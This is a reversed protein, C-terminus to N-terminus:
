IKNVTIKDLTVDIGEADYYYVRYEMNGAGTRYFYLSFDTYDTGISRAAIDRWVYTGGGDNNVAEIRILSTNSSASVEKKLRFIVGYNGMSQDLTYPGYSMFGPGSGSEAIVSKGGDATADNLVTGVSRMQDEAQYTISDSSFKTVTVKDSIIDAVDTTYVRFEMTGGPRRNFVLSFDTWTNASSFDTGKISKIVFPSTGGPNNVEIRAVNENSYTPNCKLRFTAKYTNNTPQDDSYPGYVLYGAGNSVWTAERAKGNSATTDLIVHGVISSSDESEYVWENDNRTYLSVKDVNIAAGISNGYVYVRYEMSGQDTRTFDVSFDEYNYTRAFDNAKIIRYRWEGDGDNNKAEVRAVPANSGNNTISMRFVAKYSNGSAQEITYPGYQLYGVDNSIAQRAQGNSADEDFVVSGVNSMLEESEYENANSTIKEVKAYDSTLDALGYTYVRFELTVENIRSFTILFSQYTDNAIFDTGKIDKYSWEGSGGSNSVDIRALVDSSSNDATKLRFIAKYTNNATQFATYPGYQMYGAGNAVTSLVAKEESADLDNVIMGVNRRLKESQFTMYDGSVTIEQVKIWNVDLNAVDYYWVRYEMTGIDDPRMFDLYFNGYDGPTTFNSMYIDWDAMVGHVTNSVELRAVPLTTAGEARINFIARYAKTPLQTNVYPGYVLYGQDDTAVDARVTTIAPTVDTYNEVHGVNRMMSEAEYTFNTPYAAKVSPLVFSPMLLGFSVFGLLIKKILKMVKEM